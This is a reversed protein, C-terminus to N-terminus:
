GLTQRQGTAAATEIANLMRHRTVADDFTPCFRTGERYDRAFHAYSQAVNISPGSGQPPSWRYEEPVPLVELSAEAGKGGHVTLEFIQAQGGAATLQLDGETGNIEWLLNTGRSRGGRYHISLAAGGELLGTVCVQDDATMPKSEGTDAITFFKRRVTMTASLERIEGLCHCLADTAHGLAISLMTAGNKKDNLYANHPEVTPGWGMGSGILSTSLVEGVYGQKILDRLYGVSPASRAQLGAVALVGKKKALAALTEAENLGNGLPWECYVAKGAELAATALEFHHPVKVTVAVLDVAASNVLDQHNDFALPVGFLKGAADASARRSTSLATIDFDDALSKLAPIHAQAAWGRDPNAGIIGVRIRKGGGKSVASMWEGLDAGLQGQGV